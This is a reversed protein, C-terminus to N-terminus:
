PLNVRIKKYKKALNMGLFQPILDLCSVLLLVQYPNFPKFYGRIVSSKKHGYNPTGNM